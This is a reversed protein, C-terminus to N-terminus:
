IEKTLMPNTKDKLRIYSSHSLHLMDALRRMRHEEQASLNDDAQAIIWLCELIKEKDEIDLEKNIVSLYPHLSTMEKHESIAKQIMAEATDQDLGYLGILCDKIKQVEKADINFDAYGVELFLVATAM